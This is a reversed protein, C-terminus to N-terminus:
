YRVGPARRKTLRPTHAGRREPDALVRPIQAAIDAAQIPARGRHRDAALRAARGHLWVAAALREMTVPLANAEGSPATPEPRALVGAILGALVDGSGAVGAWPTGAPSM